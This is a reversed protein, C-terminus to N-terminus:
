RGGRAFRSAVGRLQGNCSASVRDYEAVTDVERQRQQNEETMERAIGDLITQLKEKLVATAYDQNLERFV